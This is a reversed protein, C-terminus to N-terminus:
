KGRRGVTLTVPKAFREDLKWRARLKEDVKWRSRLEFGGEFGLYEFSGSAVPDRHRKLAEKGDLRVDLAAALLARRVEARAQRCRINELVPAFLKVVPNGARKTVEPQWEKELRGPPLDLM